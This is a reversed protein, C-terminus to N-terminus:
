DIQEARNQDFADPKGIGPALNEMAFIVLIISFQM